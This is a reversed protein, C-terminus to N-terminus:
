TVESPFRFTNMLGDTFFFAAGQAGPSADTVLTVVVSARGDSAAFVVVTVQGSPGQPTNVTGGLLRGVGGRYGVSYGLIAKRPDTEPRLGIITNGLAGVEDDVLARPDAESAPVGRVRVLWAGGGGSIVLTRPDNTMPRWIRPDYELRYGLDSQYVTGTVLPQGTPPRGCPPNPCRAKPPSPAILAVVAAGIGLLVVLGALLGVVVTRRGLRSGASGAPVAPVGARSPAAQPEWTLFTFQAQAWGDETRPFVRVPPGPALRDWIGCFDAGYGLVFRSGTHTFALGPPQEAAIQAPPPPGPASPAPPAEAGAQRVDISVTGVRVVDGPRVVTADSIRIGNVWTGNTSGLDRVELGEAAPGIAAHRRSVQPDEILLDANRRGIVIQSTVEFSTGALIGNRVRLQLGSRPSM